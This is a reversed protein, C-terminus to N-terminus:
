AAASAEAKNMQEVLMLASAASTEIKAMWNLLSIQVHHLQEEIDKLGEAEGSLRSREIKCMIRTMEMASLARRMRQCIENLTLISRDINALLTDIQHGCDTIVEGLESRTAQAGTDAACCTVQNNEILESAHNSQALYTMADAVADIETSSACQLEATVGLLTETLEQHNGAVVSLPGRGGELRAAQLKLQYPILKSRASMADIHQACEDIDRLAKLIKQLVLISYYQARNRGADRKGVEEIMINIALTRYDKIGESVMLVSLKDASKQPSLGDQEATKLHAFFRAFHRLKTSTVPFHCVVRGNSTNYFNVSIWFPAADESQCLYYGASGAFHELRSEMRQYVGEPMDSHAAVGYALRILAPLSLSRSEGIPYNTARVEGDHGLLCLHLKDCPVNPSQINTLTSPSM